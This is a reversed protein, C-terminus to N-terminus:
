PEGVPTPSIAAFKSSSFNLVELKAKAVGRNEHCVVAIQAAVQQFCPHQPPMITQWSAFLRGRSANKSTRFNDMRASHRLRRKIISGAGGRQSTQWAIAAAKGKGRM